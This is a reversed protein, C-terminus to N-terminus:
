HLDPRAPQRKWRGKVSPTGSVPAPTEDAGAERSRGVSRLATLVRRQLARQRAQAAGSAMRREAAERLADAVKENALEIHLRNVM